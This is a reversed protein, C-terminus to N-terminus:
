CFGLLVAEFLFGDEAADFFFSFEGVWFNEMVGEADGSRLM